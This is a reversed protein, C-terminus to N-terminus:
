ADVGDNGVGSCPPRSSELKPQVPSSAVVNGFKLDGDRAGERRVLPVPRMRDDEHARADRHNRQGHRFSDGLAEDAGEASLQEVVDDNEALSVAQGAHDVPIADLAVGAPGQRTRRRLRAIRAARM